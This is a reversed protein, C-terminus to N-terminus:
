LKNNFTIYKVIAIIDKPNEPNGKYNLSVMYPESVSGKGVAYM